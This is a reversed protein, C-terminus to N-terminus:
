KRRLSFRPCREAGPQIGSGKDRRASRLRQRGQAARGRPCRVSPVSRRESGVFSGGPGAGRRAGRGSVGARPRARPRRGQVPPVRMGWPFRPRPRRGRGDTRSPAPPCRASGPARVRERRVHSGRASSGASAPGPRPFGVCCPSPGGAGAVGRPGERGGADRPGPGTPLERREGAAAVLRPVREM